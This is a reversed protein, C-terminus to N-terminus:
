EHHIKVQLSQSDCQNGIIHGMGTVVICIEQLFYQFLREFQVNGCEGIQHGTVGGIQYCIRCAEEGGPGDLDVTFHMM